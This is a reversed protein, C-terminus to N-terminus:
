RENAAAFTCLICRTDNYTHPLAICLIPKHTLLIKANKRLPNHHHIHILHKESKSTFHIRFLSTRVTCRFRVQISRFIRLNAYTLCVFKQHRLMDGTKSNSCTSWHLPFHFVFVLLVPTTSIYTIFGLDIWHTLVTTVLFECPFNSVPGIFPTLRKITNTGQHQPREKFIHGFLTNNKPSPYNVM